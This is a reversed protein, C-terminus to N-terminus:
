SYPARVQFETIENSDTIFNTRPVQHFTIENLTFWEFIISGVHIEVAHIKHHAVWLYLINPVSFDTSSM